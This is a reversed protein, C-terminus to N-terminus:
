IQDIPEAWRLYLEGIITIIFIAMLESFIMLTVALPDMTPSFASIIDYSGHTEMIKFSVFLFVLILTACIFSFYFSKMQEKYSQINKKREVESEMNEEFIQKKRIVNIFFDVASAFGSTTGNNNKILGRQTPNTLLRFSLLFAPIMCLTLFFSVDPPTMVKSNSSSSMNASYNALDLTSSITSSTSPHVLFLLVVFLPITIWINCWFVKLIKEFITEGFECKDSDSIKKNKILQHYLSLRGIFDFILPFYQIFLILVLVSLILIGVTVIGTFYIVVAFFYSLGKLLEFMIQYFDSSGPIQNALSLISRILFFFIIHM